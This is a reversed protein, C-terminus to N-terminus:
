VKGVLELMDDQEGKPAAGMSGSAAPTVGRIVSKSTGPIRNFGQTTHM